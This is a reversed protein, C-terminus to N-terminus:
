AQEEPTLTPDLSRLALLGEPNWRLRARLRGDDHLEPLLVAHNADRLDDDRRRVRVADDGSGGLAVRLMGFWGPPLDDVGVLAEVRGSGDADHHATVALTALVTDDQDLLLLHTGTEPPGPPRLRLHIREGRLEVDDLVATPVLRTRVLRLRGGDDQPEWRSVGDPALPSRTLPRQLDAAVGIRTRGVVVDYADAVLGTLDHPGEGLEVSERVGVARLSLPGSAGDVELWLHAGDLVAAYTAVPDGDRRRPGRLLRM